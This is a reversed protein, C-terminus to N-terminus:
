LHDFRGELIENMVGYHQSDVIEKIKEELNANDLFATYFSKRTSLVKGAKYIISEVYSAGRGKDQTQIHFRRDKHVIESNLGPM